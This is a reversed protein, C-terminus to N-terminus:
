ELAQALAERCSSGRPLCPVPVGGEERIRRQRSQMARDETVRVRKTEKVTETPLRDDGFFSRKVPSV